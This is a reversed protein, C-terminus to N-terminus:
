STLPKIQHNDVTYRKASLNNTHRSPCSICVFGNGQQVWKHKVASTEEPKSSVTDYGKPFLVSSKKPKILNQM